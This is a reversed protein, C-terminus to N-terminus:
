GIWANVTECLAARKVHVMHQSIVHLIEFKRSIM